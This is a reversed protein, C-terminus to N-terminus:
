AKAPARRMHRRLREDSAEDAVALMERTSRGSLGPALGSGGKFTPMPRTAQRGAPKDALKARMADEIFATLTLKNLAAYAKAQALLSDHLDLTTRM